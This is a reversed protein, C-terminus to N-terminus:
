LAIMRREHAETADLQEDQDERHSAPIPTAQNALVPRQRWRRSRGIVM